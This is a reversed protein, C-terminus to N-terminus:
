IHRSFLGVKTMAVGCVAKHGQKWAVKQCEASCYCAAKCRSCRNLVAIVGCEDCPKEGGDEEVEAGAAGAKKMDMGLLGFTKVLEVIDGKEVCGEFDADTLGAHSKLAQLVVCSTNTQARPMRFL